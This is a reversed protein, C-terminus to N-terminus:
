QLVFRAGIRETATTLTLWYSGAALKETPILLNLPLLEPHISQELVLNGMIDFIRIMAPSPSEADFYLQLDSGAQAPNPFLLLETGATAERILAVINSRTLTGDFDMQRFRYYSLGEPMQMDTHEYKRTTHSSTRGELFAIEVWENRDASRELFFGVNNTESHTHWWLYADTGDVRGQLETAEVVLPLCSGLGFAAGDSIGSFYSACPVPNTFLGFTSGDAQSGEFFGCTDPNALFGFTSGDAQSGEFFGCTDPNPLLAFAAGDTSDGFYYSCADPNAVLAIGIGDGAGGLYQAHATGALLSLLCIALYPVARKIVAM